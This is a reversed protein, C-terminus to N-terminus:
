KYRKIVVVLKKSIRITRVKPIPRTPKAEKVSSPTPLSFEGTKIVAMLQAELEPYHDFFKQLRQITQDTSVYEAGEISSGCWPCNKTEEPFQNGCFRCLFYEM